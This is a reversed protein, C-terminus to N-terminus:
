HNKSPASGVLADWANPSDVKGKSVQNMYHMPKMIQTTGPIGALDMGSELANLDIGKWDKHPSDGMAEQTAKTGKSLVNMLPNFKVEGDSDLASSVDRLIPMTDMAFLLSRKAAWLGDNEGDQPGKGTVMQSLMAPVLVSLAMGYTLKGVDGIGKNSMAYTHGIDRVQNYIGNHFSYFMTMFKSLDGNRMIPPLDKPAGSGLGLRVASDAKHAAQYQAEDEPLEVHEKLADRYVSLWLTHSMLHDTYKISVNGIRALSRQIGPSQQLMERVDRDQNEGRFRMENPSLDKIQQTMEAPHALFDVMAQTYGKANTSLLMRPAHTWQLLSTSIKFALSGLTLNTRLTRMLRSFDGLGQVASGNRDNIISRLWPMMKEEYGAGLTSRLTNRISQNRLLRNASLMFERHSIDKVVKAVHQTLVQEYDLNLPGGYGRRGKTYGRSTEARGYGTEMLNQASTGADADAGSASFRPDMMIPFYGGDLDMSTGDALWARFPTPDVMAPPLGTLRTEMQRMREGLPKLMDWVDQVHQWEERTLTERVRDVAAPDWGHSEFTKQLRDLNGENGMNMAMSVLDHRTIPEYIGDVTVKELMKMRQEKTMSELSDGLKKTIEEQMAYEEGQSDAALHWLNDHWPGTKGGDLWEILRETRMLLADGRQAWDTATEAIGANRQFVRTPASELSEHARNIMSAMADEFTVRRGNVIMRLEQQALARINLLADHVLRLESMPISRYSATRTEDYIAPDIAPEKGMEYQDNAWETLTGSPLISGPVFGIEYRALLKNFQARYEQGAKGLNQQVTKGQVRKTYAAFKNAYDQAAQAERYLFHNMLEMHKAQKAGWYDGKGMAEFAERAYKRSSDLYRTPQLDVISKSDIMQRASERYSDIPATTNAFRKGASEEQQQQRAEEKLREVKSKLDAIKQDRDAIRSKQRDNEKILHNSLSEMDKATKKADKVSAEEEQERQYAQLEREARRLEYEPTNRRSIADLEKHISDARQDNAVALDAKDQLSGDYRIDGHKATMFAQTATDIAASRRPAAEIRSMMEEGSGFGHIEAATEADTGGENRYLGPHQEQLATIREEGFQRVLEDKNLTLLTGDELEGKRLSRIAKYEPQSDVHDTVGQRVNREEERWADSRDRLTAENIKALIESKAQEVSVRNMDAYNQFQEDTWGAEDPSKFLQPGAEQSAKNVGDEAAYMRDFVDRIEPSLEVGLSSAKQYVSGLWVSFRQFVGRLGPSPANGERLYQENANAWKEHQETTLPESDKAGLFHLVKSYDGKLTDSSGDRNALDRLMFLYSHAPEHVFTSLDGIKTKGIEFSGDPLTRFWGRPQEEGPASQHLVNQGVQQSGEGGIAGTAAPDAEDPTASAATADPAEGVTVKPNYLSLLESPKMGAERAMNTYVNADKTALTEAVEPTEGAAEYRGRLDEKVDAYEPTSATEASAAAFDSQLKATGGSAEWDALDQRGQDFQTPTLGSAPDVIHPLMAKQHEPDLQSLFSATPVEVDGGSMVSETYNTSGLDSAVAAPDMKQGKFYSSFQDSPIRLSPDDGFINQLAENFKEPSRAKLESGEAANVADGLSAGFQSFGIHMGGQIAAAKAAAALTGERWSTGTTLNEGVKGAAGMLAGTGVSALLPSKDLGPVMDALGAITNPILNVGFAQNAVTRAEDSSGGSAAKQTYAQGGAQASFTSGISLATAVKAARESWGFTRAAWGVASAEGMGVAMSALLPAVQDMGNSTAYNAVGVNPDGAFMNEPKLGTEIRQLLNQKTPGNGHLGAFSAVDGATGSIGGAASIAMRTLPLDYLKQAATTLIPSAANRISEWVSPNWASVQAMQNRSNEIGGLLQIEPVGSVAANDPNSAWGSTRPARSVFEPYDLSSQDVSQQLQKQYGQQQLQPSVGTKQQLQLQRAYQDPDQTEGYAVSQQLDQAPNPQPAFASQVAAADSQPDPTSGGDPSFSMMQNVLDQTLLRKPM